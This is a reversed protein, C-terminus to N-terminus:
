SHGLVPSTRSLKPRKSNYNVVGQEKRWKDEETKRDEAPLTFGFKPDCGILRDRDKEVCRREIGLNEEM